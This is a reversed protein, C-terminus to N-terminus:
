ELVSIAVEIIKGGQISFARCKWQGKQVSWILYVAEPYFAENVDIPSPVDPGRPHSHYIGLLEWGQAEIWQFAQLQEQPHLRYRVPSHLINTMPLVALVQGNKGAILGCAEQPARQIVDDLMQLWQARSM